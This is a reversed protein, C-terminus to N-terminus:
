SLKLMMPSERSPNCDIHEILANVNPSAIAIPRVLNRRAPEEGSKLLCHTRCATSHRM